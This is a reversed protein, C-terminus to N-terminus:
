AKPTSKRVMGSARALQSFPPEHEHEFFVNFELVLVLVIVFVIHYTPNRAFSASHMQTLFSVTLWATSLQAEM